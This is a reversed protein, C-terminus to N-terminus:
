SKGNIKQHKKAKKKPKELPAPKDEFPIPTPAAMGNQARFEQEKKVGENFVALQEPALLKSFDEQFKLKLYQKKSAAISPDKETSDVKNQNVVCIHLMAELQDAQQTSLNLQLTSKEKREAIKALQSASETQAHLVNTCAFLYLCAFLFRKM